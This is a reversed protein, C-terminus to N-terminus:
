DRLLIHMFASFAVGYVVRATIAAIISSALDGYVYQCAFFLGLFLFINRFFKM